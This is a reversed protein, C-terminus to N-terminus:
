TDANSAEKPQKNPIYLPLGRITHHSFRGPALPILGPYNEPYMEEYAFATAEEISDFLLGGAREVRKRQEETCVGCEELGTLLQRKGGVVYGSHQVLTYQAPEMM